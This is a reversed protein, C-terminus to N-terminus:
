FSWQVTCLVLAKTNMIFFVFTITNNPTCCLVCQETGTSKCTSKCFLSPFDPPVFSDRVVETVGEEEEVRIYARHANLAM